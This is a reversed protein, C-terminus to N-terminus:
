SISEEPVTHKKQYYGHIDPLLQGLMELINVLEM